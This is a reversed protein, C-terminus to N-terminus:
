APAPSLEIYRHDGSQDAWRSSFHEAPYVELLSCRSVKPRQKLWEDMVQLFAMMQVQTAIRILHIGAIADGASELIDAQQLSQSAYRRYQTYCRTSCRQDARRQHRRRYRLMCDTFSRGHRLALTGVILVEGPEIDSDEDRNTWRGLRASLALAVGISTKGSGPPGAVEVVMGPSISGDYGAKQKGKRIWHSRIDSNFEAILDDLPNCFTSFRPLNTANNLLSSAPTSAIQTQPFREPSRSRDTSPGVSANLM